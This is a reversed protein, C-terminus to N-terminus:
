AASGVAPVRNALRRRRALWLVVALVAALMAVDIAAMWWPMGVEGPDGTPPPGALTGLGFALLNNVTHLAISAELGGTRLALVAAVVGFATLSVLRPWQLDLHALTFLVSTIGVGFWPNRLYDGIWQLLFGRFVYEEAAAQVPVLAITVALGGLVLGPDLPAASAADGAPEVLTGVVVFAAFGLIVLPVVVVCAMALWRWRLRGAVSSVWGLSRGEVVRVALWVAPLAVAVTLLLAVEDLIPNNLLSDGPPEGAGPNLLEDIMALPILLVISAIFTTVLILPLALVPKWWRYRDTRGLRHYPAGPEPRGTTQKPPVWYPYYPAFPPPWPYM